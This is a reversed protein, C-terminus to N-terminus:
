PPANRAAVIHHAMGITTARCNRDMRAAIYGFASQAVYEGIGAQRNLVQLSQKLARSLQMKIRRSWTQFQTLCRLVFERPPL